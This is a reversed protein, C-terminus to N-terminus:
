FSAPWLMSKFLSVKILFSCLKNLLFHKTHISIFYKGDIIVRCICHIIDGFKIFDMSFAVLNQKGVAM